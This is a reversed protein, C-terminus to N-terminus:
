DGWPMAKKRTVFLTGEHHSLPLDNWKEALHWGTKQSFMNVRLDDIHEFVAQANREDHVSVMADMSEWDEAGTSGLIEKEHGEADLKLFDTGAVLSKFPVTEVDFRELDGYPSPKAGALHSGTTNGVVRVFEMRRERDSVAMQNSAVNNVENVALNRDLLAHHVPDPEFCRVACGCRSLLISHLGINAGIDLAHRYLDRNAWYFSFMILEDFDMLNLSDVSGMREYPFVLPGFPAFDVPQVENAGFLIEVERRAVVALMNYLNSGTAHHDRIGPLALLLDSLVQSSKMEM